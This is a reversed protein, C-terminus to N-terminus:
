LPVSVRRSHPAVIHQKHMWRQVAHLSGMSSSASVAAARLTAHRCAPLLPHVPGFVSATCESGHVQEQGCTLNQYAVTQAVAADADVQLVYKVHISKTKDDPAEERKKKKKRPMFQFFFHSGLARDHQWRVLRLDHPRRCDPVNNINCTM